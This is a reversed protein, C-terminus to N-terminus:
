SHSAQLVPQLIKGTLPQGEPHCELFVKKSCLACKSRDLRQHIVRIAAGKTSFLNKPGIVDLYGGNVLTEWVQEKAGIIYLGGGRQNRRRAEQALYEAGALDVFNIGSAIIALHPSNEAQRDLSERVHDVAAFFLSGDVRAIHLQPCETVYPETTFGRRPCTPDPVGFLVRPRSTRALYFTLSLFVGVLIAIELDLLLTGAFTTILIVKEAPESRLIQDIHHLDILGWAVLFLIGAMAANPMYVVWPGVLFLIPPLMLGSLIAAMPTKAGSSYNLGSRNFSGTAVYGSFFSGALNSLGQGLFEQNGDINQGSRVGLARGISVAETLALLAVALAGASLERFAELSFEPASLPPLSIPLAGVTSIVVGPDFRRWIVGLLSGAVLAVIMYPTRPLFRKVLVGTLLTVTGITILAPNIQTAQHFVALWTESFSSGRPIPLGTFHRVQNTAILIAAGATFGIVVSHSIFNVLVGLRAAGLGLQILGAMFTLTLALQVYQESGPEAHASLLSFLVISAATTPGSVLHWSSGFLAAVIAPVIGAYLGYEPPMGAITAFAVGQPLVAVAGTLGALFDSKFTERNVLPWWLFFPFFRRMSTANVPM